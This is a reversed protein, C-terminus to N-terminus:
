KLVYGRAEMCAAFGREFASQHQARAAQQQQQQAQQQQQQQAQKQQQAQQQRIRERLGAGVVGIAAGKGADGQTLEAVAAGGAAGKVMSGNMGSGGQAGGAAAPAAATQAQPPPAQMPDFGSQTRSWDYCALKDRDTQLASQGKAPYIVPMPAALASSAALAAALLSLLPTARKMTTPKANM